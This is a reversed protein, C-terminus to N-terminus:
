HGALASGGAIWGVLWAVLFAGLVAEGAGGSGSAGGVWQAQSLVVMVPVAWAIVHSAWVAPLAAGIRAGGQRRSTM